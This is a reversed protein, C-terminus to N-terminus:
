MELLAAGGSGRIEEHRQFVSPYGSGLKKSVASSEQSCSIETWEDRPSREAQVDKM